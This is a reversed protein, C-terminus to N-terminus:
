RRLVAQYLAAIRESFTAENFETTVLRLGAEGIRAALARDRLLSRIQGALHADDEHRHLLGTEGEHVFELIGGVATGVVPRGQAMAELLTL